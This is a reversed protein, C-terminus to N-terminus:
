RVGGFLERLGADLPRPEWGLDRRAPGIDVVTDQLFSMVQDVNIFAHRQVRGLLRAGLLALGAPVHLPRARRGQARGLARVLDDVTLPEPGAVDYTRGATEPRGLVRLVLDIADLLYVPRLLHRGDGPIPVLPAREVIAAFLDFEASGRGYIMTPRLHTVDLGPRVLEREARLKTRAYVYQMPRIACTSSFNVVRATGARMCADALNRTGCVNVRENLEPDSSDAVAALHVVADTGRVAAELTSPELLDARLVEAGARALAAGREPRRVLARVRHGAELLAPVLNRGVFGTAGTAAVLM